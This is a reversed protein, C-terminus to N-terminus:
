DSVQRGTEAVSGENEFLTRIATRDIKGNANKPLEKMVMWRNPLMYKPLLESLRQRIFANTITADGSTVYACCITKGEFGGLDAAVAASEMLHEITHLASEIEALEIRHGRSKIQTDTRGLYYVQGKEDTMGLDGTRYLRQNTPLCNNAVFVSNTKQPDEWYGPSLGAGSIYIEGINGDAVPQLKDDLVHIQEGSISQGIPIDETSKWPKEKVTFFSSAITAETPGYLNTFQVHPLCEMLSQLTPTPMVEGCWLLRRLSPFDNVEIVGFKTMYTLVSPVSFWQTLEEERIFRALKPALLNIQAPVLHLTAGRTLSGYIDFTSLDFHLPSHGSLQDESNIDFYDCAWDLFACVNAHTIVVGKPTGTSGSTFLIHAPDSYSVPVNPREPNANPLAGLDFVSHINDIDIPCEDMSVVLMDVVSIGLAQSLRPGKTSEALVVAPRCTDLVKAIRAPPSDTDIPVYPCGAKLAALMGFIAEPSKPLFLGVRDGKACGIEILLNALRDTIEDVERYSVARGAM